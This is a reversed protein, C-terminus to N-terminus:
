RAGPCSLTKGGANPPPSFTTYGAVSFEGSGGPIKCETITDFEAGSSTLINVLDLERGGALLRCTNWKLLKM